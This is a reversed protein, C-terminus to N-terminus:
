SAEAVACGVLGRTEDRMFEQRKDRKGVLMCLMGLSERGSSEAFLLM